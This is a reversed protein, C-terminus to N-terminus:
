IFKDKQTKIFKFAEMNESALAYLKNRISQDGLENLLDTYIVLTKKLIDELDSFYNVYDEKTFMAKEKRYRKESEM